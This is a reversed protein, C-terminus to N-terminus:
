KKADKKEPDALAVLAGAPIGSVAVEDPNRALFQVPTATYHGQNAVFVIPKGDRTFVAKAPISIANPIRNIIIDMGGNMGPRLRADTGQLAAYARFNRTPPWETGLEALPSISTIKGEIPLEPL